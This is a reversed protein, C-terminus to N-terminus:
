YSDLPRDIKINMLFSTKKKMQKEIFKRYLFRNNFSGFIIANLSPTTATTIKM